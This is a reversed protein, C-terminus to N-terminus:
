ALGALVAMCVLWARYQQSELKLNGKFLYHITGFEFFTLDMVYIKPRFQCIIKFNFERGSPQDSYLINELPNIGLIQKVKCDMNGITAMLFIYYFSTTKRNLKSYTCIYNTLNLIVTSFCIKSLKINQHANLYIVIIESSFQGVLLQCKSLSTKCIITTFLKVTPLELLSYNSLQYNLYHITQCNTTWTTFLKVTPQELIFYLM